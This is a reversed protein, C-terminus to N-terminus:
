DTSPLRMVSIACPASAPDTPCTKRVAARFRLVHRRATDCSSRPPRSSPAATSAPSCRCRSTPAACRPRARARRRRMRARVARERAHEALVHAVVVHQLKGSAIRRIVLRAPTATRCRPIAAADRGFAVGVDHDEIRLRDGIVRRELLRMLVRGADQVDDDVAHRHEIRFPQRTGSRAARQVAGPARGDGVDHPPDRSRPPPAAAHPARTRAGAPTRSATACVAAAAGHGPQDRQGRCFRCWQRSRGIAPPTDRRFSGHIAGSIRLTM